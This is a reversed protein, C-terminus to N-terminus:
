ASKENCWINQVATLDAETTQMNEPPEPPLMNGLSAWAKLLQEQKRKNSVFIYYKQTTKFDAHGMVKMLVIDQVGHESLFTAFSHRLGYPTLYELDYKARFNRLPDSLNESVYPRKFRNLFAYSKESWNLKYKKFILKQEDKHKLLAKKLTPHLPIIRYSDETKLTDVTRYHGIIECDDNYIAFDKYANKVSITNNEFNFWDWTVACAEEPRLGSLLMTEFLLSIDTNEKQLCEIWINQRDSEIYNLDHGEIKLINKVQPRIPKKVTRPFSLYNNERAFNLIMNLVIYVNEKQRPGNTKDILSKFDENTLSDIDQNDKFFPILSLNMITNYNDLTKRSLPNPNDSSKKTFSYKYRFWERSVETFSKIETNVEHSLTTINDTENNTENSNVMSYCSGMISYFYTIIPSHNLNQETISVSIGDFIKFLKGYDVTKNHIFEKLAEFIKTLLKFVADDKNQATAELRPNHGLDSIKLTCRALFRDGKKTLSLRYYKSGSSKSTLKTMVSQSCTEQIKEM